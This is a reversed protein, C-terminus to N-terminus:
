LAFQSGASSVLGQVHADLFRVRDCPAWGRATGRIYRGFPESARTHTLLDNAIRVHLGLPRAGHQRGGTEGSAAAMGGM